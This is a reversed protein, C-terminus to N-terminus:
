GCPLFYGHSSSSYMIHLRVDKGQKAQGQMGAPLLFILALFVTAYMRKKMTMVKNGNM